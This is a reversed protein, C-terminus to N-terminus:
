SSTRYAQRWWWKGNAILSLDHRTPDSGPRAFAEIAGV